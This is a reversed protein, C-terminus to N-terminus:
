PSYPPPVRYQEVVPASMEGAYIEPTPAGAQAISDPSQSPSPGLLRTATGQARELPVLHGPTAPRGGVGSGLTIDPHSQSDWYHRNDYGSSSRPPESKVVSFGAKERPSASRHSPPPGSPGPWTVGSDPREAWSLPNTSQGVVSVSAETRQVNPSAARSTGKEAYKAVPGVEPPGPESAPEISERDVDRRRNMCKWICLIVAAVAVLAVIGGVIAGIIPAIPLSAATPSTVIPVAPMPSNGTTSAVSASATLAASSTSLSATASSQSAVSTSSANPPNPDESADLFGFAIYDFLFPGDSTANVVKVTLTHFTLPLLTSVYLSVNGLPSPASLVPLTVGDDDITYQAWPQQGSLWPLAAGYIQLIRGYFILQFSMGPDTTISLTGDYVDSIAGLQSHANPSLKGDQRATTPDAYVIRSDFNDVFTADAPYM